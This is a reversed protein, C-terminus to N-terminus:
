DAQPIDTLPRGDTLALPVERHAWDTRVFSRTCGEITAASTVRGVAESGALVVTDPPASGELEMWRLVSPPHGLNRVRAVSEQGLFCGKTTDITSGLRGESPLHRQDVDPGMRVRGMWVRWADLAEASAEVLDAKVLADELRWAPKGIEILVDVGRGWVSPETGPQGVLRAAAGLVAVAAWSATRDELAVDASLLYPHLLLGIHDPQGPDQLLVLDGDRRLVHVDARIRGTPTLLLSRTAGGPELGEVDATLLDHLWVRADTGAVRVKRWASLDVFAREQLLARLEDDQVADVGESLIIPM